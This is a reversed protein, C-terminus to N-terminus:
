DPTLGALVQARSKSRRLSWCAPDVGGGDPRYRAGSAMGSRCPRNREMRCGLLGAKERLGTAKRGRRAVPTGKHLSVQNSSWSRLDSTRPRWHRRQGPPKTRLVPAIDGTRVLGGRVGLPPRSRRRDLAFSVGRRYGRPGDGHAWAPQSHPAKTRRGSLVAWPAFRGHSSRDATARSVRRSDIRLCRNGPPVYSARVGKVYYKQVRVIGLGFRAPPPWSRKPGDGRPREMPTIAGGLEPATTAEQPLGFDNNRPIGYKGPPLPFGSQREVARREFVTGTCGRGRRAENRGNASWGRPGRSRAHARRARFV